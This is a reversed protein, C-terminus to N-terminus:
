RNPPPTAGLQNLTDDILEVEPVGQRIQSLIQALVEKEEDEQFESLIKKRKDVAMARVLAVVDVLKNEEVMVMLQEKSQEPPLKELTARVDDMGRTRESERRQALENLFSEKTRDIQAKTDQLEAQLLKLENMGTAIASERMLLDKRKGSRYELYDDISPYERALPDEDMDKSYVEFLDVGRVLAIIQVFNDRDLRGSMALYSVGATEAMLTAASFYLFLVATLHGFRAIM